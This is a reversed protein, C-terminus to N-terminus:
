SNSIFSSQTLVTLVSSCAVLIIFTVARDSSLDKNHYFWIEDGRVVIASHEGAILM